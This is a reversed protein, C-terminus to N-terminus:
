ANGPKVHQDAGEHRPRHLEQHLADLARRWLKRTAEASRGMREGIEEFTCEDHNHLRIVRCHDASLRALARELGDREEHQSALGSPTPGNAVLGGDFGDEAEARDQPSEREICRMQRGRYRRAFDALNHRLLCRLWAQWEEASNGGFQGFDRQAELFTDQVLDSASGKPLLASDLEDEAILYLYTRLAQLLKGLAEGSGDRAAALWPGMDPNAYLNQAPKAITRAVKKKM